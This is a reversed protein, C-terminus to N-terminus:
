KRSFAVVGETFVHCGTGVIQSVCIPHVLGHCVNHVIVHSAPMLFILYSNSLKPLLHMISLIIKAHLSPVLVHSSSLTVREVVHVKCAQLGGM